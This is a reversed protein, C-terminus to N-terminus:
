RVSRRPALLAPAAVGVAIAGVMLGVTAILSLTEAVTATAAGASALQLTGLVARFAYAGPIMAVVGPFALAVAPARFHRAFAQALVGVALAGLLTGAILDLGAHFLATRLTHSAVACLACAWAMRLPVGFLLAYGAGALASFLADEAVGIVITPADVPVALGTLRAAAILGFAVALVILGAFGLRSLGITVHGRIMDMMGNILPVGPVLIMAPAVLALAPSRSAGLQVLAGGALGGLLAVVFAALVPNAGRHGLALRIATGAAGALGAAACAAVDGGFLRALSAATLGLAAAVLWGPYAPGQHEVAELAAHADALALRGGAAEDVLRNLAAIAAMGVGAGPLRHGIKTRVQAGAVLTVLLAEYTVLLNAEAGYAGAFRAMAGQVHETDAGNLLLLRGLQLALHALADLREDGAPPPATM